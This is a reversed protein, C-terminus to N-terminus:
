ELNRIELLVSSFGTFPFHPLGTTHVSRAKKELIRRNNLSEGPNGASKRSQESAGDIQGVTKRHEGGHELMSRSKGVREKRKRM